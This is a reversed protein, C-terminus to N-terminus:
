LWAPSGLFVGDQDLWRVFINLTQALEIEQLCGRSNALGPIDLVWVEECRRLISTNFWLWTKADTDRGTQLEHAYVIPSFLPQEPVFMEVVQKALLFRTKRILPDPDSYPSALYIIKM